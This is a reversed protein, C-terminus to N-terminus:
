KRSEHSQGVDIAGQDQEAYFDYMIWYFLCSHPCGLMVDYVASSLKHVCVSFSLSGWKWQQM